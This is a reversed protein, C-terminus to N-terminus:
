KLKGKSWREWHISYWEGNHENRMPSPDMKDWKVIVESGYSTSLAVTLADFKAELSQLM